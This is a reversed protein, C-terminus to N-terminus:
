VANVACVFDEAQQVLRQGVCGGRGSHAVMARFFGAAFDDTETSAWLCTASLREFMGVGSVDAKGLSFPPCGKTMWRSRESSGCSTQFPLSSCSVFGSSIGVTGM